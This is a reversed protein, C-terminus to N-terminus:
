HQTRSSVNFSPVIGLGNLARQARQSGTSLYLDYLRLVDRENFVRSQQAVEAIAEVCQFFKAALESFVSHLAHERATRPPLGSLTDYAGGGMKAYYDVDVARRALSDQFFGSIFLSVDGLRQLALNRAMPSPTELADALMIALPKLGYGDRTVEYLNDARAFCSLLNVMYHETAPEMSVQQKQLAAGLSDRFWEDLNTVAEVKGM